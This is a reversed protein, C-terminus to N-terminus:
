KNKKKVKLYLRESIAIFSSSIKLLIGLLLAKRVVRVHRRLCHYQFIQRGVVRCGPVNAKKVSSL